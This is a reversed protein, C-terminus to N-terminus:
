RGRTLRRRRHTFAGDYGAPAPRRASGRPVAPGEGRPAARVQMRWGAAAIPRGRTPFDGTDFGVSRFSVIVKWALVVCRVGEEREWANLVGTTRSSGESALAASPEACVQHGREGRRGQSSRSPGAMPPAKTTQSACARQWCSRGRRVLRGASGDGGRMGSVPDIQLCDGVRQGPWSSRCASPPSAAAVVGDPEAGLLVRGDRIPPVQLVPRVAGGLDEAAGRDEASRAACFLLLRREAPSSRARIQRVGGGRLGCWPASLPSRRISSRSPSDRPPGPEAPRLRM